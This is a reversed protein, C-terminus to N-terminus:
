INERIEARNVLKHGKSKGDTHNRIVTLDRTIIVSDRTVDRAVVSRYYVRKQTIKQNLGKKSTKSYGTPQLAKKKQSENSIVLFKMM